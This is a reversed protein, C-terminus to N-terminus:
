KRWTQPVDWVPRAAEIEATRRDVGIDDLLRPDLAALRRRERGLTLMRLAATIPNRPARITRTRRTTDICHEM